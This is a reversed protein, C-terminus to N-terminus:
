SEAPRDGGDPDGAEPQGGLRRTWARMAGVTKPFRRALRDVLRRVFPLDIALISLGITIFLIGQLVPLVIGLIGLILFVVGVSIRVIRLVTRALPSLSM